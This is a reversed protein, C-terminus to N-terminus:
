AVIICLVDKREMGGIQVHILIERDRGRREGRGGRGRGEEEGGGLPQLVDVRQPQHVQVNLWLVDKDAEWLLSLAECTHPCRVHLLLLSSSVLASLEEVLYTLPKHTYLTDTAMTVLQNGHGGVCTVHTM